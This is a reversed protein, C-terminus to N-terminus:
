RKRKLQPPLPYLFVDYPNFDGDSGWEKIEDEFYLWRKFKEIQEKTPTTM